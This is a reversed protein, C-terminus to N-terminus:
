KHDKSKPLQMGPSRPGGRSTRSEMAVVGRGAATAKGQERPNAYQMALSSAVKSPTASSRSFKSQTAPSTAGRPTFSSSRSEYQKRASPRTNHPSEPSSSASESDGRSSKSALYRSPSRVKSGGSYAHRTTTTTTTQRSKRQISPSMSISMEARESREIPEITVRSEVTGEARDTDEPDLTLKMEVSKKEHKQKDYTVKSHIVKETRERPREDASAQAPQNDGLTEWSPEVTLRMEIMRESKEIPEVTLRSEITNQDVEMQNEAWSKHESQQVTLRSEVTKSSEGFDSRNQKSRSPIVNITRESKVKLEQNTRSTRDKPKVSLKSDSKGKTSTHLSRGTPMVYSSDKKSSGNAQLKRSGVELQAAETRLDGGKGVNESTKPMSVMSVRDGVPPLKTKSTSSTPIQELSSQGPRTSSGADTASENVAPKEAENRSNRPPQKKERLIEQWSNKNVCLNNRMLLSLPSPILREWERFLPEVVYAIFGAQIDAVTVKYKDCNPTIPLQLRREFDGQQFFEDCVRQSWKQSTPWRRCPNCIDACKLAIQLIFHRHEHNTFDLDNADLHRQFRTLFEQQRTIDTALILSKIQWELEAKDEPKFHEVLGTENLVAVASRWHHNELVSTNHYLSALHHSNAILFAQNVGPHDLDHTIAALLAALTELPTIIGSLQNEQLYCHMAQTVDAAHIANHYPNQSHYGEEILAFCKLLKMMDLQFYEILNYEHFLYISMYFLSRGNTLQNLYFIDLDWNGIHSLVCQAQGSYDIDLLSAGEYSQCPIKPRRHSSRHLSLFKCYNNRHTVDNNALPEIIKHDTEPISRRRREKGLGPKTRVRVDGLMRVYIANKDTRDFSIGGRRKNEATDLDLGDTSSLYAM